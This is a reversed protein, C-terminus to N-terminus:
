YVFMVGKESYNCRLNDLTNGDYKSMVMFFWRRSGHDNRHSISEYIEEDFIMLNGLRNFVIVAGKCHVKAHRNKDESKIAKKNLDRLVMYENMLKEINRVKLKIVLKLTPQRMDIVDYVQTEHNDFIREKVM